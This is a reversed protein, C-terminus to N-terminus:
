VTIQGCHRNKVKLMWESALSRNKVKTRARLRSTAPRIGTRCITRASPDTEGLACCWLAKVVHTGRCVKSVIIADWKPKQLLDKIVPIIQDGDSVAMAGGPLFDHQVDVLILAAMPNTDILLFTICPHVVIKKPWLILRHLKVASSPGHECWLSPRKLSLTYATAEADDRLGNAVEESTTGSLVM